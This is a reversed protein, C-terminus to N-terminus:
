RLSDQAEKGVYEKKEIAARFQDLLSTFGHVQSADRWDSSVRDRRNEWGGGSQSAQGFRGAQTSRTRDTKRTRVEIADDEVRM